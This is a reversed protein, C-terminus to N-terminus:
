FGAAVARKSSSDSRERSENSDVFRMMVSGIAVPMPGQSAVVYNHGQMLLLPSSV